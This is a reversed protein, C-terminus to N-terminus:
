KYEETGGTECPGLLRAVPSTEGCWARVPYHCANGNRETDGHAGSVCMCEVFFHQDLGERRFFNGRRGCRVELRVAMMRPGLDVLLLYLVHPVTCTDEDKLKNCKSM